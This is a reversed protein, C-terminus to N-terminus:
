NELCLSEGLTRWVADDKIVDPHVIVPWKREVAKGLKEVVDSESLVHVQSPAHVSVYSFQSLDLSDLLGMLPDLEHERLASLEIAAAPHGAVMRVGLRVDSLALSGTSFGVWRM